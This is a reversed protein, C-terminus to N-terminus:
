VLRYIYLFGCLFIFGSFWIHLWLKKKLRSIFDGVYICLSWISMLWFGSQTSSKFSFSLVSLILFTLFFNAIKRHYLSRIRKVSYIQYFCVLAAVIWFLTLFPDLKLKYAEPLFEIKPIFFDLGAVSDYRFLFYAQVFIVITSVSFVPIVFYRWRAKTFLLSAVFVLLLSLMFPKYFLSSISILLVSEFIQLNKQGDGTLQLLRIIGLSMILFGALEYNLTIDAILLAIFLVFFLSIFSHGKQIEFTRLYFEVFIFSVILLAYNLLYMLSNEWNVPLEINVLLYTFYLASLVIGLILFLIPKSQKFFDAIM